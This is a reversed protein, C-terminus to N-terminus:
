AAKMQRQATAVLSAALEKPDIKAFQISDVQARLDASLLHPNNIYQDALVNEAIM